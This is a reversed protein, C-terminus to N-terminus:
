RSSSPTGCGPTSTAPIRRSRAPPAPFLGGLWGDGIRYPLTLGWANFAKQMVLVGDGGIVAVGAAVLVPQDPYNGDAWGRVMLIVLPSLLLGWTAITQIFCADYGRQNQPAHEAVYVAARGYGAGLALGQLM